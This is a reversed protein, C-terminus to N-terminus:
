AAPAEPRDFFDLRQVLSKYPMKEGAEDRSQPSWIVYSPRAVYRLSYQKGPDPAVLWTIVGNADVSYHTGEVQDAINGADDLLIVREMRVWNYLRLRETSEGSKKTEGVRHLEANVVMEAELLDVRDLHGPTRTSRMTLYTMGQMWMGLDQYEDKRQRGPILVDVPIGTGWVIGNECVDCDVKPQRSDDLHCPCTLAQRLNAAIGHTQIEEDFAAADFDQHPLATTVAM